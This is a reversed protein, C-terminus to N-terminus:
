LIETKIKIEMLKDAYKDVFNLGNRAKEYANVTKFPM